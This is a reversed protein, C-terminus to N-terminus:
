QNDQAQVNNEPPVTEAPVAPVTANAESDASSGDPAQSTEQPLDKANGAPETRIPQDASPDDIMEPFIDPSGDPEKNERSEEADKEEPKMPNEASDAKKDSEAPDTGTEQPENANETQRKERYYSDPLTIRNKPENGDSNAAKPTGYDPGEIDWFLTSNTLPGFCTHWNASDTGDGPESDREMSRRECTDLGAAWKQGLVKDIMIGSEDTLVLDSSFYNRIEINGNVIDPEVALASNASSSQYRSILIYGRAPIYRNAPLHLPKNDRLLNEIKWKGINIDNGTMNRLEIWEDRASVHSGMWMIENIVVDGPKVAPEEWYGSRIMNTITLADRFGGDFYNGTNGQWAQFRLDFSCVGGQLSQDSSTLYSTFIWDHPMGTSSATVSLDKIPGTFVSTSGNEVKINLFRCLDGVMNMQVFHYQMPASGTTSAIIEKLAPTSPTVITFDSSTTATIDLTANQIEASAPKERDWFLAMTDVTMLVFAWYVLPLGTIFIIKKILSSTKM